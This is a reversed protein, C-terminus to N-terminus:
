TPNLFRLTNTQSTTHSSKESAALSQQKKQLERLMLQHYEKKLRILEANKDAPGNEQLQNTTRYM